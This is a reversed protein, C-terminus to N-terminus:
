IFNFREQFRWDIQIWELAYLTGLSLLSGAFEFSFSSALTGGSDGLRAFMEM